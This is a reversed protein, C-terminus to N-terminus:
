EISYNLLFQQNLDSIKRNELLFVIGQTSSTPVNGTSTTVTTGNCNNPQSVDKQVNIYAASNSRISLVVNKYKKPFFLEITNRNFPLFIKRLSIM